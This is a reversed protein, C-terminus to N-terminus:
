VQDTGWVREPVSLAWELYCHTFQPDPRVRDWHNRHILVRSPNDVADGLYRSVLEDSALLIVRRDAVIEDRIKGVVVQLHKTGFNSSVIMPLAIPADPPGLNVRYPFLHLQDGLLVEIAADIANPAPRALVPKPLVSEIMQIM